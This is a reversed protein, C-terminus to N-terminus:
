APRRLVHFEIVSSNHYNECYLVPQHETTFHTQRLLLLPHHLPVNLRAALLENAVVPVVKCIASAIELRADKLIQYLSWDGHRQHVTEPDLLSAPLYEESQIVPVGNATRTRSFHLLPAEATLQFVAALQETAPITERIVSATGPDYGQARIVETTSVLTELGERINILPSKAVFTGVGRRRELTGSSVLIRVADRLTTRSVGLQEAFEPESPLQSGLPLRGEQIAERIAAALLHPLPESRPRSFLVIPHINDSM